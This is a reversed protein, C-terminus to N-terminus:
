ERHAAPCGGIRRDPDFDAMRMVAIWAVLPYSGAPVVVTFPPQSSAFVIDCAVIHGSPLVLDGLVEREIVYGYDEDEYTAGPTLLRDLDPTFPM